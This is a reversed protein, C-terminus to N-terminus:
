EKHKRKIEAELELIQFPLIKELFFEREKECREKECHRKECHDKKCHRKKCHEKKCHRKKCHEKECDEKKCHEEVRIIKEIDVFGTLANGGLAHKSRPIKVNLAIIQEDVPRVEMHFEKSKKEKKHKKHKKDKKSM